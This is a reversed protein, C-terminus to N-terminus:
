RYYEDTIFEVLGRISWAERVTRVVDDFDARSDWGVVEHHLAAMVRTRVEEIDMQFPAGRPELAVRLRRNLFLNGGWVPGIGHLKRATEIEISRGTVDTVVCGNYFRQSLAHATCSTLKDASRVPVAIGNSFILAPYELTATDFSNNERKPM